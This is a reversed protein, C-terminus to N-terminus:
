HFLHNIVLMLNDEGICAIPSQIGISPHLGMAIALRKDLLLNELNEGNNKKEYYAAVPRFFYWPRTTCSLNSRKFKTNPFKRLMEDGDFSVTQNPSLFSFGKAQVGPLPGITVLDMTLSHTFGDYTKDEARTILAYSVVAKSYDEDLPVLKSSYYGQESCIVHCAVELRTAAYSSLQPFMGTTYVREGAYTNFEAHLTQGMVDWLLRQVDSEPLEASLFSVFPFEALVSDPIQVVHSHHRCKTSAYFTVRFRVVNIKEDTRVVAVYIFDYSVQKLPVLTYDTLCHCVSGIATRISECEKHEFEKFDPSSQTTYTCNTDYAFSQM